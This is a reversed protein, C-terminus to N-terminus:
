NILITQMIFVLVIYCVYWTLIKYRIYVLVIYCGSCVLDTDSIEKLERTSVDFLHVRYEGIMLLQAHSSDYEICTATSYLGM